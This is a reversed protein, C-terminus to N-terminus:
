EGERRERECVCVICMHHCCLPARVRTLSERERVYLICLRHCCLPARARVGAREIERVVCVLVCVCVCLCVCLACATVVYPRVCM